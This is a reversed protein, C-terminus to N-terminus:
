HNKKKKASKPDEGKKAVERKRKSPKEEPEPEAAECVFHAEVHGVFTQWLALLLRRDYSAQAGGIPKKASVERAIAYELQTKKKHAVFRSDNLLQRPVPISAIAATDLPPAASSRLAEIAAVREKLTARLEANDALMINLQESARLTRRRLKKLADRELCYRDRWFDPPHELAEKLMKRRKLTQPDEMPEPAGGDEETNPAAILSRDVIGRKAADPVVPRMSAGVMIPRRVLLADDVDAPLPPPREHGQSLDDFLVVLDFNISRRCGAVPCPYPQQSGRGGRNANCSRRWHAILCFPQWHTCQHGVGALKIRSMFAPDRLTIQVPEWEGTIKSLASPPRPKAPPVSSTRRRAPPPPPPAVAAAAAMAAMEDDVLKQIDEPPHDDDLLANILEDSLVLPETDDM